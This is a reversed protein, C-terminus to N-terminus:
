ITEASRSGGILHHSIEPERCSPGVEGIDGSDTGKGGSCGDIAQCRWTAQLARVPERVCLKVTNPESRPSICGLEVSQM